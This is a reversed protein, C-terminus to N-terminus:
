GAPLLWLVREWIFALGHPKCLRTVVELRSSSFLRFPWSVQRFESGLKESETEDPEHRKKERRRTVLGRVSKDGFYSSVFRGSEASL